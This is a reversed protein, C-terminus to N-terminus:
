EMIILRKKKKFISIGACSAVYYHCGVGKQVFLVASASLNTSFLWVGLVQVLFANGVAQVGSYAGFFFPSVCGCGSVEINLNNVSYHQASDM